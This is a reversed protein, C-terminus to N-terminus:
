KHNNGVKNYLLIFHHQLLFSNHWLQLKFFFIFFRMRELWPQGRTAAKVHKRNLSLPFAPMKQHADACLFNVIKAISARPAITEQNAKRAARPARVCCIIQPWWGDAHSLVYYLCFSKFFAGLFFWYDQCIQDTIPMALYVGHHQFAHSNFIHQPHMIIYIIDCWMRTKGGVVLGQPQVRRHQACRVSATKSERAFSKVIGRSQGKELRFVYM